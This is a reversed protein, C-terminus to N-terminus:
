EIEILIKKEAIPIIRAKNDKYKKFEIPLRIFVSRGDFNLSREISFGSYSLAQVIKILEDFKKAQAGNLLDRNCKKCVFTEIKASFPTNIFPVSIIKREMKIKCNSCCPIKDFFADKAIEFHIEGKDLDEEKLNEWDIEENKQLTKNAM